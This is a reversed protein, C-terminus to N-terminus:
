KMEELAETLDVKLDHEVLTKDKLAPLSDTYTPRDEKYLLGVPLKAYDTREPETAKEMAAKRDKADHGSGELKYVRQQFWQYTNLKNFTVCPQFVDIIAFGRHTIGGKILEKLHPIDGAYGRAVYTAGTLIATALPNFPKEIAGFPTSKTKTGTQTTPSMQGTTLGYLQNDHVMYLLDYNRRMIHMFHQIGIGYGDGDGGVAIVKLKHNALHIGSAVPVPRGHLGEFGYTDMYHPMKSCCGVGSSIVVDKPDLELESIAGKLATLIGFNGCGPCWQSKDKVNLADTSVM